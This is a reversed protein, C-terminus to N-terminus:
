YEQSFRRGVGDVLSPTKFTLVAGDLLKMDFPLNPSRRFKVKLNGGAFSRRKTCIARFQRERHTNRSPPRCNRDDRHQRTSM